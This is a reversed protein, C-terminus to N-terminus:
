TSTTVAKRKEVKTKVIASRMREASAVAQEAETGQILVALFGRSLAVETVVEVVASKVVQGVASLDATGAANHRHIRMATAVMVSLTWGIGKTKLEIATITTCSTLRTYRM